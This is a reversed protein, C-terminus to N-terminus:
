LLERVYHASLEKKLKETDILLIAHGLYKVLGKKELIEFDRSVTERTMNVSAAIDKHTLPANIIVGRGQKKGLQDGLSLLRAVLRPYSKTIELNEVREVFIDFIRLVEDLLETLAEPNQKIFQIFKGKPVDRLEVDTIAECFIGMQLNKLARLIPFLEGPRYIVHLKENGDETLSYTKVFGKEILYVERSNEEANLIIAGKKFKVTKSGSFLDALKM